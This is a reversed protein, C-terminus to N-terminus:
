GCHSRESVCYIGSAFNVLDVEKSLLYELALRLDGLELYTAQKATSPPLLLAIDVDSNPWEDGTGFSGFLYVAQADPFFNLVIQTIKDQM